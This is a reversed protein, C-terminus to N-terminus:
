QSPGDPEYCFWGDTRESVPRSCQDNEGRATLRYATGALVLVVLALAAIVRRRPM